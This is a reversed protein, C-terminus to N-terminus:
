ICRLEASRCQSGKVPAAPFSAMRLDNRSLRPITGVDLFGELADGFRAGLQQQCPPPLM